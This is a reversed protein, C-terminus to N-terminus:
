PQGATADPEDIHLAKKTVRLLAVASEIESERGKFKRWFALAETIEDRDGESVCIARIVGGEHITYAKAVQLKEGKSEGPAATTTTETDQMSAEEQTETFTSIKFVITRRKRTATERQATEGERKACGDAAPELVAARLRPPRPQPPLEEIKFDAVAVAKHAPIRRPNAQSYAVVSQRTYGYPHKLKPDNYVRELIGADGLAAVFSARRGITKCAEDRSVRETLYVKGTATFFVVAELDRKVAEVSERTFGCCAKCNSTLGYVCVLRGDKVLESMRTSGRGLFARAEKPTVYEGPKFEEGAKTFRVGKSWKLFEDISERTILNDGGVTVTKLHGVRVYHRVNDHEIHLLAAAAKYSVPLREVRRERVIRRGDEIGALEYGACGNAANRHRYIWVGRPLAERLIDAFPAFKALIGRAFDHAARRDALKAAESAFAGGADGIEALTRTAQTKSAGQLLRLLIACNDNPERLIAAFMERLANEDYALLEASM